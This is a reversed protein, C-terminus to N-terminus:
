CIGYDYMSGYDPCGDQCLTWPTRAGIPKKTSENQGGDEGIEDIKERVRSESGRM